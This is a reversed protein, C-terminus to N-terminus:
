IIITIINNMLFLRPWPAAFMDDEFSASIHTRVSTMANAVAQDSAENQTSMVVTATKNEKLMQEQHKTRNIEVTVVEVEKEQRTKHDFIKIKTKPEKLWSIRAESATMRDEPDPCLKTFWELYRGHRMEEHNGSWRSQKTAETSKTTM